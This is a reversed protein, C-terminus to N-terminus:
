RSLQFCYYNRTEPTVGSTLFADFDMGADVVARHRRHMPERRTYHFLSVLREAPERFCTVRISDRRTYPMADRAAHGFVLEIRMRDAEPRAAFAAVTEANRAGDLELTRDAPYFQRLYETFSAGGCKPMHDFLLPKPM